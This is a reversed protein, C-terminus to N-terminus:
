KDEKEIKIIYRIAVSYKHGGSAFEVRDDNFTIDGAVYRTIEHNYLTNIYTIKM